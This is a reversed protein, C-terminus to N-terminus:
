VVDARVELPGHTPGSCLTLGGFVGEPIAIAIPAGEEPELPGDLAAEQRMRPQGRLGELLPWLPRGKRRHGTGLATERRVTPWGCVEAPMVLAVPLREAPGPGNLASEQRM